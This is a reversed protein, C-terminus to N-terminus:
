FFFFCEKFLIFEFSYLLHRNSVPKDKCDGFKTWQKRRLVNKNVRVKNSTVKIINTVKVTQGQSNIQM